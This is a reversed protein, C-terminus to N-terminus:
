VHNDAERDLRKYINTLDADIKGLARADEVKHENFDDVLDDLKELIKESTNTVGSTWSRLLIGFIGLAGTVLLETLYPQLANM